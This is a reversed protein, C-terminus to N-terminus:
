LPKSKPDAKFKIKDLGLSKALYATRNRPPKGKSIMDEIIIDLRIFENFVDRNSVIYDIQIPTLQYLTSILHYKESIEKPSLQKIFDITQKIEQKLVIKELQEKTRINFTLATIKKRQKEAIEWDFSIGCHELLEKQSYILIRKEFDSYNKYQQLEIGLLSKLDELSVTWQGQNKYQSMLEYIRISHNSSLSLIAKLDIMTYGNSLEYFLKKCLPNLHIVINSYARDKSEYKAGIFPVVFGFYDSDKTSNDFFIKRTTIKELADKIRTRNSEKLDNTSFVVKVALLENELDVKFGQNGKLYLLTTLFIHKEIITFEQRTLNLVNSLRIISKSNDEM